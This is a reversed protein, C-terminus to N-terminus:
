SGTYLTHLKLYIHHAKARSLFPTMMKAKAPQQPIPSQVCFSVVSCNLHQLQDMHWARFFTKNFTLPIKDRLDEHIYASWFIIGHATVSYELNLSSSCNSWKILVHHHRFFKSTDQCFHSQFRKWEVVSVDWTQEKKKLGPNKQEVGPSCKGIMFETKITVSSFHTGKSGTNKQQSPSHDRLM